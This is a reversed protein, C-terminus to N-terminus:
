SRRRLRPLIEKGVLDISRAQDDAPLHFVLHDFGLGLYAGIKECAQDPDSSVIFRTHANAEATTARREMERPDEVGRKAEEPLALAAWPRCSAIASEDTTDFSLKVEIMREFAGPDRGSRELGRASGPLLEETYLEPRKGSTVIIGDGIEGAMEAAKPGGAAVLIPVPSPPKDFIKAARTRFHEGEHTVYGDSWLERMLGVAERLRRQRERPSPWEITAVPVENMAEGSGVGLFVRGPTLSALTAVAQAVIAPHYRFGPSVVSTGLRARTTRQGVAGLWAFSFPAHGGTDRWPHFHDSVVISDFGREEARVALELLESPAFQEASAKWGLTPVPHAYPIVEGRPARATTM